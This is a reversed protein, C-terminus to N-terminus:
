SSDPTLKRIINKIESNKMYVVEERICVYVKKFIFEIDAQM